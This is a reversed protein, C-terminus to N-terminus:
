VEQLSIIAVIALASFFIRLSNPIRNDILTLIVLLFAIDTAMAIGYGNIGVPDGINILAYLGAPIVAGGLAAIIPLTAKSRESLEGAILERKIELGVLLFFVAMLGDNIFHEVSKHILEFDSVTIDLYSDFIALYVDQFPSNAWILALITFAFLLIGGSVALDTFRKTALELKVRPPERIAEILSERDWAGDYRRGDIFITPTGNVGSKLGEEIDKDIRNQVRESDIDEKFKSLDLDLEEAMRYLNDLSHNRSQYLKSHMEWFKGQDAAAEAAAAAQRAERHITNLPFHRFVFRIKGGYEMMLGHMIEFLYGCHPCAYDGYEVITLGEKLGMINDNVNVLETLAPQDHSSM